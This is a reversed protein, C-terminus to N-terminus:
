LTKGMFAQNLQRIERLDDLSLDIANALEEESLKEERSQMMENEVSRYKLMKYLKESSGVLLFRNYHAPLADVILTTLEELGLCDRIQKRSAGEVLAYLEAFILSAFEPARLDKWSSALDLAFDKVIWARMRESGTSLTYIADGASSNERLKDLCRNEKEVTLEAFRSMVKIERLMTPSLNPFFATMQAVFEPGSPVDSRPDFNGFKRSGGGGGSKGIDGGGVRTRISGGSDGASSTETAPVQSDESSEDPDINCM